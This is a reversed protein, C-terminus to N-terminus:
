AGRTHSVMSSAAMMRKRELMRLPWRAKRPPPAGRHLPMLISVSCLSNAHGRVCVVPHVVYQLQPIPPAPGIKKRRHSRRHAHSIRGLEAQARVQLANTARLPAASRLPTWALVPVSAAARCCRTRRCYLPPVSSHTAPPQSASRYWRCSNRLLERYPPKISYKYTPVSAPSNIDPM